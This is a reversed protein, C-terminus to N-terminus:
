FNFYIFPNYSGLVLYSICVLFLIVYVVTAAVSFLGTYRGRDYTVIRGKLWRFVSTAYIIGFLLFVGYEHM